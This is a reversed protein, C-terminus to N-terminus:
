PQPVKKKMSKWDEDTILHYEGKKVVTMYVSDFGQHNNPDFSITHDLGIDLNKLGEATKIFADRTLERGTKSLVAVLAKANIFGELSVFNPRDTPYSKKLLDRYEQMIPSTSSQPPVGQTVIVGDSDGGTGILQAFEEAGVFSLSHFYPDFNSWKASMIFNASPTYTGAMIVVEPQAARITKLADTIAITGTEYSGAAVPKSGLKELAVEVGKLGSKGYADNQYFVAFKRLGYLNWLKNIIAQTEDYTSSRVNFVEKIVPHRFVEAGTFLGFLPIHAKQILPLSQLTTPTGLYNCLAFVKDQEILKRTNAESTATDYNDNYAILKITRGNVGGKENISNIYTMAGHHMQTGLYSLHGDLALSSGLIIENDKVGDEAYSLSTGMLYMVTFFLCAGLLRQVKMFFERKCIKYNDM